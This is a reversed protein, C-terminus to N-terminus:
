EQVEANPDIIGKLAGNSFVAVKKQVTNTLECTLTPMGDVTVAISGWEFGSGTRGWLGHRKLHCPYNALNEPRTVYLVHCDKYEFGFRSVTVTNTWHAGPVDNPSFTGVVRNTTFGGEYVYPVEVIPKMPLERNCYLWMKDRNLAADYENSVVFIDVSRRSAAPDLPMVLKMLIGHDPSQGIKSRLEECGKEFGRMWAEYVHKSDNVAVNLAALNAASVFAGAKDKLETEGNKGIFESVIHKVWANNTIVQSQYIKNTEIGATLQASSVFSLIAFFATAIFRIM